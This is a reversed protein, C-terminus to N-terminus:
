NQGDVPGTQDDARSAGAQSPVLFPTVHGPHVEVAGERRARKEARLRTGARVSPDPIEHLLADAGRTWGPRGTDATQDRRHPCLLRTAEGVLAATVLTHGREQAFSLVALRAMKRAVEPVKALSREAEETWAITERAVAELPPVYEALSLWVHCPAIRLLCEANGGIDLEADAHVGTRGLLLLSANVRQVYDAIARWPKGELLECHLAIGDEGAVAAAVALHSRYIKALGEDIIDEHLKEQERFRFVQSATESLVGAIRQFAVYHFYPDYAAVAHVEVGLEHGLALALKLAGFARPSGDLGVVIPGDGISRGPDRIALVDIPARRAVRECVTGILSGPVAGLGVAGLAILDFEGGAAKAIERYNKGEPSLRRYAIQSATCVAEAADHYSDSIVGLGRTILEDHVIRQREMADETRYHEPLGGEMQRFRRDHLRAAYAHIGTVAGGAAAAIRVAEILARNAHDSADLAVLIRRLRQLPRTIPGYRNNSAVSTNM